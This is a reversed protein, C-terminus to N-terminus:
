LKAVLKESLAKVDMRLNAIENTVHDKLTDAESIIQRHFLVGLAFGGPLCVIATVVAAVITDEM